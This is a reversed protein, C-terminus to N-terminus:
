GLGIGVAIAGVVADLVAGGVAIEQRQLLALRRDGAHAAEAALVAEVVATRHAAVRGGPGMAAAAVGAASGLVRRPRRFFLIAPERDQRAAYLPPITRGPVEPAPS